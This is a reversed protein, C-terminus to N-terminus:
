NELSYDPFKYSKGLQIEEPTTGNNLDQFDVIVKSIPVPLPADLNKEIISLVTDGPLIEREYYLTNEMKPTITTTQAKAEIKNESAAPLSGHNFDNYVAYLVLVLFLFGSLKKM